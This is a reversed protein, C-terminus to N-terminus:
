EEVAEPESVAAANGAEAMEEETLAWHQLGFLDTGGGFYAPMEPATYEKGMGSLSYYTIDITGKLFNNSDSDKKYSITNIGIRYPSAYVREIASKLGSYTITNSYTAQRAMFDIQEELGEVAAGTVTEVPITHVTEPSAINIKDYNIVAASQLNVAMMLVDEERADAPYDETMESVAAVMDASDKRYVELNDYYQKMDDVQTQLQANSSELATTLDNYKTFVLMYILLCVVVGILTVVMFVQKSTIKKM